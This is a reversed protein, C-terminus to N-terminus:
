AKPFDPWSPLRVQRIHRRSWWAMGLGFCAGAALSAPILVIIFAILFIPERWTPETLWFMVAMFAGFSTGWGLAFFGGLLCVFQWFSLFHPPPLKYGLRWALRWFPPAAARRSIGRRAAWEIFHQVKESHTLPPAM